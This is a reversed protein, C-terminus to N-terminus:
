GDGFLQLETLLRRWGNKCLQWLMESFLMLIRTLLMIRARRVAGAARANVKWEALLATRWDLDSMM